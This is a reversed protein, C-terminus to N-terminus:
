WSENGKERLIFAGDLDFKFNQRNITSQITWLMCEKREPSSLPIVGNYRNSKFLLKWFRYSRGAGEVM